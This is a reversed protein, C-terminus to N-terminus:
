GWLVAEVILCVLLHVVEIFREGLHLVGVTFSAEHETLTGLVCVRRVEETEKLVKNRLPLYHIDWMCM